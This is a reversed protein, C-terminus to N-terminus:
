DIQSTNVCSDGSYTYDHGTGGRIYVARNTPVFESDHCNVHDGGCMVFLRTKGEVYKCVVTKGSETQLIPKMENTGVESRCGECV